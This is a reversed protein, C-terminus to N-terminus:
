NIISRIHKLIFEPWIGFLFLGIVSIMAAAFSFDAKAKISETLPQHFWMYLIIKIYYYVGILSLLVGTVAL